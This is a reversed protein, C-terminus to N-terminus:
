INEELYNHLDSSVATDARLDLLMQDVEAPRNELGTLGALVAQRYKLTPFGQPHDETFVEEPLYAAEKFDALLDKLMEHNPDEIKENAIFQVLAVRVSWIAIGAAQDDIPTAKSIQKLVYVTEGPHEELKTMLNASRAVDNDKTANILEFFTEVVDRMEKPVPDEAKVTNIAIINEVSAPARNAHSGEENGPVSNPEDIMVHEDESAAIAFDDQALPDHGMWSSILMMM